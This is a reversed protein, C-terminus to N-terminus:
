VYYDESSVEFNDTLFSSCDPCIGELISCCKECCYLGCTQCYYKSERIGCENCIEKTM